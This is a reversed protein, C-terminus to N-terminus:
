QTIQEKRLPKRSLLSCGWFNRVNAFRCSVGVKRKIPYYKIFSAYSELIRGFHFALDPNQIALVHLSLTEQF